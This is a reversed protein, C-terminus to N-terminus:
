SLLLQRYISPWTQKCVNDTYNHNTSGWPVDSHPFVNVLGIPRAAPNSLCASAILPISFTPNPNTSTPLMVGKGWAPLGLGLTNRSSCSRATILLSTGDEAASFMIQNIKFVMPITEVTM